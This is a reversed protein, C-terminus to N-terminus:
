DLDSRSKNAGLTKPRNTLYHTETLRTITARLRDRFEVVRPVEAYPETDALLDRLKTRIMASNVSEALRLAEVGDECAQEAEGALLRLRALRIQGFVKDRGQGASAEALQAITYEEAGAVLRTDERAM